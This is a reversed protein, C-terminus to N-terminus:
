NTLCGNRENSRVLGAQLVKRSGVGITKSHKGLEFTLDHWEHTRRNEPKRFFYIKQNRHHFNGILPIKWTSVDICM